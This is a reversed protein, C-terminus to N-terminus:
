VSEYSDSDKSLIPFYFYRVGDVSKSLNKDPLNDALDQFLKINLNFKGKERINVLSKESIEDQIGLDKEGSITITWNMDKKKVKCEYNCKGPLEVALCIYVKKDVLTIYYSYKQEINNGYFSTM